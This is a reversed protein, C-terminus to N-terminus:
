EQIYLISGNALKKVIETSKSPELTVCGWSRGPFENKSMYNISVYSSPHIVVARSRANSNIGPELGDLRLSLGKFKNSYYTESCKFLGKSSMLSMRKNSFKLNKGSRIGSNRGHSTFWSYEIEKKKLNILFFRHQNAPRSFDVFAAYNANPTYNDGLKLTKSLITLRNM